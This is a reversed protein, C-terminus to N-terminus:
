WPQNYTYSKEEHRGSIRWGDPTRVFTDRYWLGCFFVHPKGGEEKAPIVMPNHLITRGEATDGTITIKSTSIMHQFAEFIPMAQALFAKTEALNGRSGGMETYDVIADATFIRDLADWDRFDIAYCYDVLLEQIELKDSIQQLDMM